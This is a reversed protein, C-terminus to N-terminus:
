PAGADGGPMGTVLAYVGYACAIMIGFGIVRTTWIESGTLPRKDDEDRSKLMIWGPWVVMCLGLGMMAIGVCSFVFRDM